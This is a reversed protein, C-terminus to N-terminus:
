HSKELLNNTRWVVTMVIVVRETEEFIGQVGGALDGPLEWAGTGGDPGAQDTLHLGPLSVGETGAGTRLTRLKGTALAAEVLVSPTLSVTEKASVGGRHGPLSDVDKVKESM